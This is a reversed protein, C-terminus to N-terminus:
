CTTLIFNVKLFWSLAPGELQGMLLVLQEQDNQALRPILIAAEMCFAKLSTNDKEGAYKRALKM